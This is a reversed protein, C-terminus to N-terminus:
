YRDDNSHGKGKGKAPPTSGHNMRGDGMNGHDVQGQNRHMQQMARDHDTNNHFTGSASRQDDGRQGHNMMDGHQMRPEARNDGKDKALAQPLQLTAFLGLALTSAILANRKLQITM